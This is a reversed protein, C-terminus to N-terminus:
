VGTQFIAEPQVILEVNSGCECSGPDDFEPVVVQEVLVAGDSDFAQVRWSATSPPTMTFSRSAVGDDAPGFEERTCEGPAGCVEVAAIDVSTVTVVVMRGACDVECSCGAMAGGPLLAVLAVLSAIGVRRM